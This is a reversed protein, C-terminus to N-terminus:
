LPCIILLSMIIMITNEIVTVQTLPLKIVAGLCACHMKHGTRIQKVVGLTTTALLIITLISALKIQYSLLFALALALECFPYIRAYSPFRKAVPDYMAFSQAFGPLDILKFFSFCLLFVGMFTPMFVLGFQSSLLTSLALIFLLVLMLPQYQKLKQM